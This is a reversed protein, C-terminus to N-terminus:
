PKLGESKNQFIKLILENIEEGRTLAMMHSGDQMIFNAKINKLPLTHDSTGHIHFINQAYNERNWNIIMDATRKLYKPTKSDLMAKFITKEKNRDPEVLPQLFKAGWYIVRSPILKNLPFAKQFKYRKPLETRCKASSIIIIQEPKLFDALETCIMGGLSIGILNFKSSTDIQMLVQKAFQQLTTRKEPIPYIIHKLIYTSDLKIKEFIRADSGQGSFLYVITKNSNQGFGVSITLLLLLITKM